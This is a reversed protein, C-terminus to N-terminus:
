FTLFVALCMALTVNPDHGDHPARLGLESTACATVTGILLARTAPRPVARGHLLDAVQSLAIGTERAVPRIGM